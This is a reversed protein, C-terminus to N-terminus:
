HEKFYRDTIRKVIEYALEAKSMQPLMEFDGSDYIIGVENLESEFGIDKRSIDNFIIMNLGKKKLKEQSREFVQSDEASFGVFIKGNSKDLSSLIDKTRKLNLQLPKNSKKLKASLTKEPTYDAVAATMVLLDAKKVETITAEAMESASVVNIVKIGYPPTLNTPGSILVLEAGMYRLARAIAYGMKGSSRNTIFRVTDIYERTPGATVVAKKGSLPKPSLLFALEEIIKDNDPYRGKGTEGCALHGEEPEIFYWGNNKLIAINRQTTVNEFMRTNMTPVLLKRNGNYALVTSLLLNDAIGHAIKALTNATAPAIILTDAWRSLETHPIWGKEVANLDTYVPCNGVASFVVGSIMGQAEPTMIIALNAGLKRLKSVLDVAKYIAIGSSIGLLINKGKLFRSEMM